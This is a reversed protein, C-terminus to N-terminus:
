FVDEMFDLPLLDMGYDLSMTLRPDQLEFFPLPPPPAVFGPLSTTIRARKRSRRLAIYGRVYDIPCYMDLPADYDSADGGFIYAIIKSFEPTVTGTADYADLFGGYWADVRARCMMYFESTRPEVPLKMFSNFKEIDGEYLELFLELDDNTIDTADVEALDRMELDDAYREFIPGLISKKLEGIFDIADNTCALGLGNTGMPIILYRLNPRDGACRRVPSLFSMPLPGDAYGDLEAVSVPQMVYHAWTAPGTMVSIGRPQYHHSSPLTAPMYGYQRLWEIVASARSIAGRKRKTVAVVNDDLVQQSGELQVTVNGQALEVNPVAAIRTRIAELETDHMLILDLDRGMCEPFLTILAVGDHLIFPRERAGTTVSMAPCDDGELGLRARAEAAIEEATAGIRATFSVRSERGHTLDEYYTLVVNTTSDQHSKCCFWAPLADIYEPSCGGDITSTNCLPGDACDPHACRVPFDLMSDCGTCYKRGRENRIGPTTERCKYCRTYFTSADVFFHESGAYIPNGKTTFSVTRISWQSILDTTNPKFYIPDACSPAYGSNLGVPGRGSSTAMAVIEADTMMMFIRTLRLELLSLATLFILVEGHCRAGMLWVCCGSVRM